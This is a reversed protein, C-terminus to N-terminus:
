SGPPGMWSAMSLEAIGVPKTSTATIKNAKIVVLMNASRGNAPMNQIAEFPTAGYKAATLRASGKLQAYMQQNTASTFSMETVQKKRGDVPGVWWKQSFPSENIGKINPVNVAMDPATTSKETSNPEDGTNRPTNVALSKNAVAQGALYIKYGSTISAILDYSDAHEPTAIKNAASAYILTPAVFSNNDIKTEFVPVRPISSIRFLMRTYNAGALTKLQAIAYVLDNRHNSASLNAKDAVSSGSSNGFMSYTRTRNVQGLNQETASWKLTVIDREKKNNVPPAMTLPKYYDRTPKTSSVVIEPLIYSAPMKTATISQIPAAAPKQWIPLGLEGTTERCTNYVSLHFDDSGTVFLGKSESEAAMAPMPIAAVSNAVGAETIPIVGPKQWIPLGLEGTTERCTNYVSLHFEGGSAAVIDRSNGNLATGLMLGVTMGCLLNNKM